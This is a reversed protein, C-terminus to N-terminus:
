LFLFVWLFVSFFSSSGWFWFLGMGWKFLGVLDRLVLCGLTSGGVAVGVGVGMEAVIGVAFCVGVEVGVRFSEGM